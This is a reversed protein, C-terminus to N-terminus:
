VKKYVGGGLNKVLGKLEMITLRASVDSVDFGSIVAIQDLHLPERELIEILKGEEQTAPMVKEMAEKDVKLQLDLEELIDQVSTAMKAGSKILFHPAGSM